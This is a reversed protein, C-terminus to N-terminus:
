HQSAHPKQREIQGAKGVLEMFEARHQHPDHALTGQALETVADFTLNGKFESNRLVLGFGAVAAAFRFDTSAGAFTTSANRVAISLAAESHRADPRKYKLKLTALEDASAAPTLAAPRQYKLEGDAPGPPQESAPVIEYLATVTHGSGLDGADKADNQFDETALLRDEYGILRYAAVLRPNFEIQVKVDKAITVLTGGAQEVLLRRAEAESDVYGYNGNGKDALREMLRDNHNGMGFGLVTLFVGDKAREEVLRQLEDMDTTGVNFDGDTCLIVRNNGDQIFNARAIDYALRIGAGGNTSGGAELTALGALIREKQFGTTSPLRIGSDAAYAVIAVRDNERLQEVLLALARRVRPLRDDPQMSGSVDVLFVLNAAPRQEAPIERGKLGIRLLKHKTQWPCAAVELKAAFPVDGEPQGYDYDFYNVLEEIRVADPPPFKQEEMLYRRVKAYSATDVDVGFTSLAYENVALFPNEVIRAYRDRDKNGAIGALCDSESAVWVRGDTVVFGLGLPELVLDLASKASIEATLAITVPTNGNVSQEASSDTDLDIPVEVLKSLDSLFQRLPTAKYKLLVPTRLRKTVDTTFEAEAALLQEAAKKSTVIVIGNRVVYSLDLESLLLKLASRLTVGKMTRTIPVDASAGSDSLTRDDIQIGIQHRQRLYEIVETLPQENFDLETEEDLVHVLEGDGAREAALDVRKYKKRRETIIKWIEPDPYVVRPESIPPLSNGNVVLDALRSTRISLRTETLRQWDRASGFQYPKKDNFPIASEEGNDLSAVIGAEKRDRIQKYKETRSVMTWTNKLQLTVLEDPGIEAARKYVAEAEAFRKEHMLKNFEDVLLALQKKVDPREGSTGAQSRQDAPKNVVMAPEEGSKPPRRKPETNQPLSKQAAVRAAPSTGEHMYIAYVALGTALLLSAAIALRRQRVFAPRHAAAALIRASLDPPQRGGVTESLAQDMLRDQWEQRSLDQQSM